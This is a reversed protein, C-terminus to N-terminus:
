AVRLPQEHVRFLMKIGPTTYSVVVVAATLQDSHPPAVEISAM